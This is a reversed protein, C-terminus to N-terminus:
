NAPLLWGLYTTGKHQFISLYFPDKAADIDVDLGEDFNDKDFHCLECSFEILMGQRRFSPNNTKVDGSFETLVKEHGVYVVTGKKEDERRRFIHVGAQHLNGNGASPTLQGDNCAPCCLGPSEKGYVVEHDLHVPMEIYKRGFLMVFSNKPQIKFM